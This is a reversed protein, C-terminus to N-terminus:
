KVRYSVALGDGLSVILSSLRQDNFIRHTYQIIGDAGERNGGHIASGGWFMNHALIIGGKRTLRMAHDLYTPYDHKDADIFVLDFPGRLDRLIRLAEGHHIRVRKAHGAKRLVDKLVEVTEREHEIADLRGAWDMGKLLWLASYGVGSGIELVRKPKRMRALLELFRGTAPDIPHVGYPQMEISKDYVWAFLSDGEGVWKRVYASVDSYRM